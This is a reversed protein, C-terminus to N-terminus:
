GEVSCSQIDATGDTKFVQVSRGPGATGGAPDAYTGPTGGYPVAYITLAPVQRAYPAPNSVTIKFALATEGTTATQSNDNSVACSYTLPGAPAAPAAAQSACGALGAILGAGAAALVLRRM